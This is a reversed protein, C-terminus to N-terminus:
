IVGCLIAPSKADSESDWNPIIDSMMLRLPRAITEKVNPVPAQLVRFEFPGNHLVDHDVKWDFLASSATTGWHNLEVMYVKDLSDNFAFDVIYSTIAPRITTIVPQLTTFLEVIQKLLSDKVQSIRPVYCAKYYQTLGNLVGNHVFGRFEFEPLIDVWERIVIKM